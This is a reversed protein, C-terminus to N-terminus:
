DDGGDCAVSLGEMVARATERGFSVQCHDASCTYRAGPVNVVGWHGCPAPSTGFSQAYAYAGEDTEYIHTHEDTEGVVHVIGSLRYNKLRYALEDPVDRATWRRDPAPLDCVIHHDADLRGRADRDIGFRGPSAGM